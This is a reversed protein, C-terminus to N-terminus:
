LLALELGLVWASVLVSVLVSVLELELALGLELEVLAAWTHHSILTNSLFDALHSHGAHSALM